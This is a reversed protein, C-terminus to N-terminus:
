AVSLEGSRNRRKRCLLLTMSAVVIALSGPEPVLVVFGESFGQPNFGYGVIAGGDGRIDTANVLRWGPLSIGYDEQLANQLLRVGHSADWILAYGQNNGVIVSGDDTLGNAASFDNSLYTLVGNDWRAMTGNGNNAAYGAIVAGDPTIAAGADTAAYAPGWCSTVIRPQMM